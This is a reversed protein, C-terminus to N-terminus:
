SVDGRPLALHGFESIIDQYLRRKFPVIIEPLLKIDEWKWDLFEPTETAINIDADDGTFRM